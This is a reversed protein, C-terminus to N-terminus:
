VSSLSPLTPKFPMADREGCLANRIEDHCHNDRKIAESSEPSDNVSVLTCKSWLVHQGTSDFIDTQTKRVSSEVCQTQIIKGVFETRLLVEAAVRVIAM